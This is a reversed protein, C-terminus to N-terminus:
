SLYLSKRKRRAYQPLKEIEDMIRILENIEEEQKECKAKLYGYQYPYNIDLESEKLMKCRGLGDDSSERGELLHPAFAYQCKSILECKWCECKRDTNKYAEM